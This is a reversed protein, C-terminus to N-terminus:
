PCTEQYPRSGFWSEWEVEDFDGASARCAFEVAHSVSTDWLYFSDTYPTLLLTKGDPLFAM